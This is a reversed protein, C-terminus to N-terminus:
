AFPDTSNQDHHRHFYQLKAGAQSDIRLLGVDRIFLAGPTAVSHWDSVGSNNAFINSDYEEDVNATFSLAGRAIPIEAHIVAASCAALGALSFIRLLKAAARAGVERSTLFSVINKM